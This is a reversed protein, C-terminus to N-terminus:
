AVTGIVGTAAVVVTQTQFADPKGDPNGQLVALQARLSAIQAEKAAEEARAAAAQAAEVPTLVQEEILLVWPVHDKLIDNAEAATEVLKFDGTVISAVQERTPKEEFSFALVGLKKHRIRYITKAM